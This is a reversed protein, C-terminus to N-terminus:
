HGGAKLIGSAAALLALIELIAVIGQLTERSRFFRVTVTLLCIITIGTLFVIPVLNLIDGHPLEWIWAWGTPMQTTELYRPLPLGWYNPLLQRPVFNSLIGFIYLAFTILLLAFGLKTLLDLFRGYFLQIQCIDSPERCQGKAPDPNTSPQSGLHTNGSEHVSIAM